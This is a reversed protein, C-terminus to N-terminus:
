INLVELIEMLNRIIRCNDPLEVKKKPSQETQIYISDIGFRYAGCADAVADNGIMVSNEKKLGCTDFLAQYFYPSPKQYGIDSSYFIADFLPSIGLHKMEPETFLRQANSLLYVGKGQKRLTTLVHRVNPYLELKEMTFVRFAQGFDRIQQENVRVGKDAYFRSFVDEILIEVEEPAIREGKTAFHERALQRRFEGDLEEYRARLTEPEYQAGQMSLLLAIKRWAAIRKESARIDVLTGYLDFIYNQYKMIFGKGEGASETILKEYETGMTVSVVAYRM